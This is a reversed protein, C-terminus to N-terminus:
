DGDADVFDVNIGLAQLMDVKLLIVNAQLADYLELMARNDTRVQTAFDDDLESAQQRAATFNDEIRQSLSQGNREVMLADLYDKLGPESSFFREGASLAELYLQKSLGGHYPAEALLANPGNSSFVGAPIGVKGARLHKEYWFLFDNVTRDVSATASNGSAETYSKRYDEDQWRESAQQSLEAARQAVLAIRQAYDAHEISGYLLYDLAPFGQLDISSPLLLNIEEVSRLRATDTPYINLQETLRLEEGAGTMYPSARQWSLYAPEFADRVGQLHDASPQARYDIARDALERTTRALDSFAPAILNNAWHELMKERDFTQTVVEDDDAPGCTFLLLPLLLLTPYFKM